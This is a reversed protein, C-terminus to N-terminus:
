GAYRITENRVTWGHKKFAEEIEEYVRSDPVNGDSRCNFHQKELDAVGGYAYQGKFPGKSIPALHPDPIKKDPHAFFLLVRKPHVKIGKAHEDIIKLIDQKITSPLGKFYTYQASALSYGKESLDAVVKDLNKM